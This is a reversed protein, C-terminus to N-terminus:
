LTNVSDQCANSIVTFGGSGEGAFPKRVSPLRDTKETVLEANHLSAILSSDPKPCRISNEAPASM